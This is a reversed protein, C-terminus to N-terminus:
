AISLTHANSQTAFGLGARSSVDSSRECAAGASSSSASNLLATRALSVSATPLSGAVAVSRSQNTAVASATRSRMTWRQSTPRVRSCRALVCARRSGRARTGSRGAAQAVHQAIEAQGVDARAASPSRPTSRSRIRRGLGVRREAVAAEAPEGGAEHFAHRREADGGVAVADAVVVAQEALDDLVAPLLFIRLVPQREAVRPLELPGLHDVVDVEAARTSVIWSGAARRARM